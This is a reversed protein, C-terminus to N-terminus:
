CRLLLLLVLVVLLIQGSINRIFMSQLIVYNIVISLTTIFQRKGDVQTNIYFFIGITSIWHSAIGDSFAVDM